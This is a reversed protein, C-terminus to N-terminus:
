LASRRRLWGVLGLGIGTLLVAGPAPVPAVSTHFEDSQDSRGVQFGITVDSLSLGTLDVSLALSGGKPIDVWDGGNYHTTGGGSAFLRYSWDQNNDNFIVLDFTGFSALNFGGKGIGVYELTGVGGVDSAHYGVDGQLTAGYGSSSTFVGFGTYGTENTFPAGPLVTFSQLDAISPTFVVGAWASSALACLVLLFLFRKM